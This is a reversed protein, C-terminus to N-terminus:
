PPQSIRTPIKVRENLPKSARNTFPTLYCVSDVQSFRRNAHNENSKMFVSMEQMEKRQTKHELLRVAPFGM